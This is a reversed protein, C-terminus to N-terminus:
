SMSLERTGPPHCKAINPYERVVQVGHGSVKDSVNITRLRLLRSTDVAGRRVTLRAEQKWSGSGGPGARYCPARLM